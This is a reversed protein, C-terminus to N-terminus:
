QLTFPHGAAQPLLDRWSKTPRGGNEDLMRAACSAGLAASRALSFGQSLGYFFGAAWADGAGTTDTVKGVPVAAAAVEQGGQQVRAGQAGLTRAFIKEPYAKAAEAVSSFGLDKLFGPFEDENGAIVDARLIRRALDPTGGAYSQLSTAIKAGSAYRRALAIAEDCASVRDTLGLYLYLIRTKQLTDRNREIDASTVLDAVGPNYVMSRQGDPTVFVLCLATAGGPAASANFAVGRKRFDEAFARGATDSAVKGIFAAHGGLAAVGAMSNAAPGGPLLKGRPLFATFLERIRDEGTPEDCGKALGAAKLDEETVQTVLDIFARCIATVDMATM